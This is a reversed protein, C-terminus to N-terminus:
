NNPASASLCHAGDEGQDKGGVGRPDGSEPRRRLQGLVRRVWGQRRPGAPDRVGSRERAPIERGGTVLSLVRGVAEGKRRGM